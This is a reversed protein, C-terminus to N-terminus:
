GAGLVVDWQYTPVNRAPVGRSILAQRRPGAPIRSLLSDEDNGPGDPFYMQTVVRQEGGRINFHIHAVRGPYRGPRITRFRYRGEADALFRASGQFETDLPAPNDDAPHSYRGAANAQWLDLRARPLPRGDPDLVRGVVEIVQGRARGHRGRIITLDADQDLPRSVPYFPGMTQNATVTLRKASAPVTLVAAVGGLMLQRREILMM